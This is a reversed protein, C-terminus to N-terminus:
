VYLSIRKASVMLWMDVLAAAVLSELLAQAAAVLLLSGEVLTERASVVRAEQAKPGGARFTERAAGLIPGPVVTVRVTHPDNL